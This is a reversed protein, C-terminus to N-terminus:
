QLTHFVGTREQEPIFIDERQENANSAKVNGHGCLRSTQESAGIIVCPLVCEVLGRGYFVWDEFMTLEALSARLRRSATWHHHVPRALPPGGPGNRGLSLLLCAPTHLPHACDM